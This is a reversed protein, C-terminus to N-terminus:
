SAPARFGRRRLLDESRAIATDVLRGAARAIGVVPASWSRRGSTPFYLAVLRRVGHHRAAIRGSVVATAQRLDAPSAGTRASGTAYRAREIAQVLTDIAEGLQADDVARDPTVAPPAAARRLRQGAQRPSASNPIVIGFDGADDIVDAWAAEAIRADRLDARAEHALQWRRRRRWRRTLWPTAGALMAFAIGVPWAIPAIGIRDGSTAGPSVPPEPGLPAATETPTDSPDPTTGPDNSTDLDTGPTTAPLSTYTPVIAGERLPTPEFRVWGVNNFYVEPWAHANQNTITYVGSSDQTGQTFGIAVRAPIGLTRLMAVMTTAFQQCYGRKIQLFTVFGRGGSPISARLDYSFTGNTFNTQIANAIDYATTANAAAVWKQATEKVVSPLNTPVGLDATRVDVPYSKGTLDPAGANELAASSPSPIAGTVTWKKGSTTTHSSFITGTPMSLRWDGDVSVASPNSPVPLFAQNLEAEATITEQVTTAAGPRQIKRLGGESVKDATGASLAVLTFGNIDFNDVATLRQYTPVTTKVHLLVTTNTALLQSQISTLPDIVTTRTSGGGGIGTSGALHNHNAGPIAIPLIIALGLTATGIRWAARSGTSPLSESGSPRSRAPLMRGWRVVRDRSDLNLVALFAITALSFPVMGVGGHRIVAAVVVLALMPLGALSPRRAGVALVDAAVAMLGVGLTLVVMTNQNAALPASKETIDHIGYTYKQAVEQWSASTPILGGVAQDAAFRVSTWAFLGALVVPLQLLLPLRLWRAVLATAAVVAITIFATPLWAWGRFVAGASCSVLAMAAATILTARVQPDDRSM